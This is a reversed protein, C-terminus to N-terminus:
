KKEKFKELDKKMSKLEEKIHEPPEEDKTDSVMEEKFSELKEKIWLLGEQLEELRKDCIKTWSRTMFANFLMEQKAKKDAVGQSPYINVLEGQIEELIIDKQKKIWEWNENTNKKFLKVTEDSKEVGVHEGGINLYDFVPEFSKFDPNIFTKGELLSTRDKLIYAKHDWLQAEIRDSKKKERVMEVLLSPEYGFETEAKMKTGTTELQKAGDQDEFFAYTYAARGCIIIHIKSNLYIDTFEGWWKKLPGWDPFYLRERGKKKLYSDILDKWFHSVSDIILVSAEKEAIKVGKLLDSFALTKTAFFPIEEDKFMPVLFDSGTETDMFYVPKVDKNKQKLRHYIGIAILGSTWTKGSGAFGMLGMKLYAQLNKAEKFM